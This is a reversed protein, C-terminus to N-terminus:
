INYINATGFTVFSKKKKKGNIEKKAKQASDHNIECFISGFFKNEKTTEFNVFIKCYMVCTVLDFSVLMSFLDIENVKYLCYFFLLVILTFTLPLKKKFIWFYLDLLFM